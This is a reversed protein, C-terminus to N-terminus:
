LPDHKHGRQGLTECQLRQHCKTLKDRVLRVVHLPNMVKVAAPIAQATATTYWQFGDMSIIKLGNRFEQDREDLWRRLVHASRSPVVDLLRAPAQKDDHPKHHETM